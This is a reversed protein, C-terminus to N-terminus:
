FKCAAHLKTARTKCFIILCYDIGPCSASPLGWVKGDDYNINIYGNCWIVEVKAGEYVQFLLPVSSLATWNAQGRVVPVCALFGPGAWGWRAWLGWPRSARMGPVRSSTPANRPTLLRVWARNSVVVPLFPYPLVPSPNCLKFSCKM